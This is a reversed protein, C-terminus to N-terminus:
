PTLTPIAGPTGAPGGSSTAFSYQPPNAPNNVLLPIYRLPVPKLSWSQKGFLEPAMYAKLKDNVNWFNMAVMHIGIDFSAQFDYVNDTAASDESLPAVITLNQKINNVADSRGDGSLGKAQNVTWEMKIGDKPGVNIYDNLINGQPAKRSSMVIIKKFLATMATSYLSDQGRCNNFPTDLRYNEIASQLAMATGTFTDARPSGRFRLYLIVPDEFHPNTAVEFCQQILEKMITVFPMSNMSIRRWNSGNEVIQLIPGFQAGPTLDPWIDFVFGRAGGDVASRIAIPSAISNVAPLFIGAANVTSVYFNTLYFTSTDVGSGQLSRLYNRLGVRSNVSSDYHAAALAATRTMRTINNPTELTGLVKFYWIFLGILVALFLALYFWLIGGSAKLKEAMAKASEGSGSFFSTITPNVRFKEVLSPM